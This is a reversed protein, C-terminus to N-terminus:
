LFIGRQNMYAFLGQFGKKSPADILAELEEYRWKGDCKALTAADSPSIKCPRHLRDIVIGSDRLYIQNLLSLTPYQPLTMAPISEEKVFRALDAAVFRTVCELMAMPSIQPLIQHLLRLRVAGPSFACLAEAIQDYISEGIAPIVQTTELCLEFIETAHAPSIVADNRCLLSTRFTRGSLLDQTQQQLLPDAGLAPLLEMAGPTLFDVQDLSMDSEGIYRLAYNEALQVFQSLYFPDNIPGLDDFRLVDEGKHAADRVVFQLYKGYEDARGEFARDLHDLAAMASGGTLPTKQLTRTMQVVCQRMAWGPLANYSLMAVGAPALSERCIRLLASKCSDDVWSLMGHAIIYDFEKGQPSWARLDAQFFEINEIEASRAVNKAYEIAAASLDFACVQAHPWHQAIPTIHHGQACGIELIRASELDPTRLGGFLASAAMASPHAAPHSMGPYTKNTYLQDVLEKMM